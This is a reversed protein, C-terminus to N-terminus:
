GKQVIKQLKGDSLALIGIESSTGKFKGTSNNRFTGNVEAAPICKRSAQAAAFATVLIMIGVALSLYFVRNRM